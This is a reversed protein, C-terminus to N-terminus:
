QLEPFVPEIQGGMARLRQGWAVLGQRRPAITEPTMAPDSMTYAKVIPALMNFAHAEQQVLEATPTQGGAPAEGLEPFVADINGGLGKLRTGWGILAARRPAITEPTMASDHMTYDKVIPAMMNFVHTDQQV